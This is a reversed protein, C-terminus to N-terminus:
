PTKGGTSLDLKAHKVNELAFEGIKGEGDVTLIVPKGSNRVAIFATQSVPNVALDVLEVDKEPTGLRQALKTKIGEVSKEFGAKGEKAGTDVAIVQAGRGDGILLVGGPAFRIVEISSLNPTGTTTKDLVSTDAFTPAVLALMVAATWFTNRTPNMNCRM